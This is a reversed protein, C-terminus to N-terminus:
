FFIKSKNQYFLLNKSFGFNWAVWSLNMTCAHCCKLDGRFSTNSFFQHTVCCEGFHDWSRVRAQKSLFQHCQPKSKELLSPSSEFEVKQLVPPKKRGGPPWEWHGWPWEGLCSEYVTLVWHWLSQHWAPKWIRKQCFQEWLQEIFPSLSLLTHDRM